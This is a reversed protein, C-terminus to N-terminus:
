NPNWIAESVSSPLPIAIGAREFQRALKRSDLENPYSYEKSAARVIKSNFHMFESYPSLYLEPNKQYDLLAEEYSKVVREIVKIELHNGAALACCVNEKSTTDGCQLKKFDGNKILLSSFPEWICAADAERSIIANLLAKPSDYYRVLSDEPLDGDSMSSRVLLEMTSLKTTAVKFNDSNNSRLRSSRAIIASGGSGAPALMKIPSGTSFFVFHTLVPAIGLDLRFQALDRSIDIGNEYIVPRLKIGARERLLKEFPLVFPYESARIMGLTLVKSKRKSQVKDKLRESPVIRANKGLSARSVLGKKELMALVESVRSKSFGSQRVLDSQFIEGERLIHVISHEARGM